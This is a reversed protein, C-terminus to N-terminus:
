SQQSVQTGPRELVKIEGPLWVRREKMEGAM